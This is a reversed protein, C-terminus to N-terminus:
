DQNTLENGISVFEECANNDRAFVECYYENPMLTKIIDKIQRPKESNKGPISKIIDTATFPQIGEPPTGKLGVLCIEKNHRLHFGMRNKYESKKGEKIWVVSDVVRYGKALMFATADILKQAVTWM